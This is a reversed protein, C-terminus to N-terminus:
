MEKSRKFQVPVYVYFYRYHSSDQVSHRVLVTYRNEISASIAFKVKCARVDVPFTRCSTSICRRPFGGVGVRRM